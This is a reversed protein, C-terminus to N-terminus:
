DDPDETADAHVDQDVLADELQVLQASPIADLYVNEGSDLDVVETVIVEVDPPTDRDGPDRSIIGTIQYRHDGITKLATVEHSNRRM